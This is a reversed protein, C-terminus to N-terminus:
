RFYNIYSTMTENLQNNADYWEPLCYFCSRVGPLKVRIIRKLRAARNLVSGLLNAPNDQMAFHADLSGLKSNIEELRMPKEASRLIFVVKDPYSADKRLKLPKSFKQKSSAGLKKKLENVEQQLSENEKRAQLLLDILQTTNIGEFQKRSAAKGALKTKIRTSNGL